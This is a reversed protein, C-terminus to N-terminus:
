GVRAPSHLIRAAGLVAAVVTETRLILDGLSVVEFGSEKAALVESESLGGEPGAAFALSAGRSLAQSWAPGLPETAREFLCFRAASAPSAATLAEAWPRTADIVPPDARGCQRAADGAIREWRLRRTEARPGELRVVSFETQTPVFRTAGLETADRVISDMKEGKALGQIWTIPLRALAKAPRSPGLEAHVTGRQVHLIRGEAEVARRPDFAVFVDGARLRLVVALYRSAQADLVRAGGVLGDIAVRVPGSM